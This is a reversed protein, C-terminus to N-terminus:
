LILNVKRIIIVMMLILILQYTITFHITVELDIITFRHVNSVFHIATATLKM